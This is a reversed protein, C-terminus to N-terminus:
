RMRARAVVWDAGFQDVMEEILKEARRVTMTPVQEESGWQDWGDVARRADAPSTIGLNQCVQDVVSRPVGLLDAISQANYGQSRLAAIAKSPDPQDDAPDATGPPTGPDDFPVPFFTSTSLSLSGVRVHVSLLLKGRM